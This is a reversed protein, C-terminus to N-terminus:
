QFAPFCRFSFHFGFVHRFDLIFFPFLFEYMCIMAFSVRRHRIDCPITGGGGGSSCNSVQGEDYMLIDEDIFAAQVFNVLELTVYLSIPVFNNFLILFTFWQGVDSSATSDECNERTRRPTGVSPPFPTQSLSLLLFLCARFFLSFSVMAEDRRTENSKKRSNGNRIQVNPTTGIRNAATVNSFELNRCCATGHGGSTHRQRVRAALARSVSSSRIFGIRKRRLNIVDIAIDM